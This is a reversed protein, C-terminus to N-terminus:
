VRIFDKDAPHLIEEKEVLIEELRKVLQSRVVEEMEHTKEKSILRQQYVKERRRMALLEEERDVLENTLIQVQALM